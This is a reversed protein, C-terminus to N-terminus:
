LHGKASGFVEHMGTSVKGTLLLVKALGLRWFGWILLPIDRFGNLMDVLQNYNQPSSSRVRQIWYKWLRKDDRTSELKNHRQKWFLSMTARELEVCIITM